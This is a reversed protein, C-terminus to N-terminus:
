NTRRISYHTSHEESSPAARHHETTRPQQSSHSSFIHLSKYKLTRFYYITHHIYKKLSALLVQEKYFMFFRLNKGVSSKSCM